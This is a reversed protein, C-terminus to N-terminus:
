LLFGANETQLMLVDEDILDVSTTLGVSKMEIEDGEGYPIFTWEESQSRRFLISM